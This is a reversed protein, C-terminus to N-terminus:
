DEIRMMRKIVLAGMLQLVATVILMIHGIQTTFLPQMYEPNLYAILGAMLPPLGMCIVATLKGEATLAKVENALEERDRLTESVRDLIEGLNGGVQAQIGVVTALLDMDKSQVRESSRQMAADMRSGLAVDSMVRRFESALPDEAQTSVLQLARQLGHGARLSSTMTDLADPLQAKFQKVRQAQRVGVVVRPLAVALAEVLLIVHLPQNLAYALLPAALWLTAVSAVYEGPTLPLDYRRLYAECRERCGLRTLIATIFPFSEVVREEVPAEAQEVHATALRLLRARLQQRRQNAFFYAGAGAWPLALAIGILAAAM